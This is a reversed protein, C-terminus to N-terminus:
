KRNECGDYKEILAQPLDWHFITVMPEINYKLCEDIINQM